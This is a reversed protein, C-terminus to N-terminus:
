QFVHPEKGCLPHDVGAKHKRRHGRDDHGLAEPKSAPAAPGAALKGVEIRKVDDRLTDPNAIELLDIM